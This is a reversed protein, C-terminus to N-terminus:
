KTIEIHLEMGRVYILRIKMQSMPKDDTTSNVEISEIQVNLDKFMANIYLSLGVYMAGASNIMTLASFIAITELLWDFLFGIYNAQGQYKAQDILSSSLEPLLM